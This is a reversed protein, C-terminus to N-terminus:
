SEADASEEKVGYRGYRGWRAMISVIGLRSAESIPRIVFWLEKKFEYAITSGFRMITADSMSYGFETVGANIILIAEDINEAYGIIEHYHNDGPGEDSITVLYITKM